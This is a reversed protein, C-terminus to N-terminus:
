KPKNKTENNFSLRDYRTHGSLTKICTGTESDWIKISLDFSGSIILGKQIQVSLVYDSHGELELRREGSEFDWVCVTRDCAGSVLTNNELSISCVEGHHGTFTRVLEGTDLKWVRITQDSSGSVVLQGVILLCTVGKTHGSLTLLCECTCLDWVKLTGDYSASVCRDGEFRVAFVSRSHGRLTTVECRGTAWNKRLLHEEKFIKKWSIAGQGPLRKSPSSPAANHHQSISNQACLSKWLLNDNVLCSWAVSVRSITCLTKFDLFSLIRIAVENPMLAIFDRKVFPVSCSLYFIIIILNMSFENKQGLFFFFFISGIASAIFGLTSFSCREFLKPFLEQRRAESLEEFGDLIREEADDGDRCMQTKRGGGARRREEEEFCSNEETDDNRRFQTKRGGGRKDEAYEGRGFQTRRGREREDDMRFPNTSIFAIGGEKQVLPGLSDKRSLFLPKSIV